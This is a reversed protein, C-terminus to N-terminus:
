RHSIGQQRRGHNATARTPPMSSSRSQCRAVGSNAAGLYRAGGGLPHDRAPVPRAGRFAAARRQYRYPFRPRRPEAAARDLGESALRILAERVPTRSVGFREELSAEDLDAGPPLRLAIIDERVQRLRAAHWHRQPPWHAMAALAGGPETTGADRRRAPTVRGRRSEAAQWGTGHSAGSVWEQGVAQANSVTGGM